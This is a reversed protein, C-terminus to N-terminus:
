HYQQLTMIWAWIGLGGASGGGSGIGPTGGNGNGSLGGGGGGVSGGGGLEADGDFLRQHSIPSNWTLARLLIGLLVFLEGCATQSCRPRRRHRDSM